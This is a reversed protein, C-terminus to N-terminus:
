HIEAPLSMSRILAWIRTETDQIIPYNNIGAVYSKKYFQDELLRDLLGKMQERERINPIIGQNVAECLGTKKAGIQLSVTPRGLAISEMLMISAMGIVVDSALLLSEVSVDHATTVPRITKWVADYGKEIQRFVDPSNKPHLKIVLRINDSKRMTTHREYFYLLLEKLISVETFGVEYGFGSSFPESVFLILSQNDTIGLGKRVNKIEKSRNIGRAARLCALKPHGTVRIREAPIGERIMGQRASEDMACIMDPLYECMQTGNPGSFRERYNHWQDLVAITPIGALTAWKWAYKESMDEEPFSAASTLMASAPIKEQLSNLFAVLEEKSTGRYKEYVLGYSEFVSCAYDKGILVYSKVAQEKLMLAIM